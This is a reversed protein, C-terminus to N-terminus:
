KYASQDVSPPFWTPWEETISNLYELANQLRKYEDPRIIVGEQFLHDLESQAIELLEIPHINDTDITM